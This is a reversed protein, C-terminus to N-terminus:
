QGHTTDESAVGFLQPSAIRDNHSPGIWRSGALVLAFLCLILGYRVWAPQLWPPLSAVFSRSTTRAPTNARLWRRRNIVAVTIDHISQELHDAYFSEVEAWLEDLQERSVPMPLRNMVLLFELKRQRDLDTPMMMFGMMEDPENLGYYVQSYRQRLEDSLSMMWYDTFAWDLAVGLQTAVKAVRHGPREWFKPAALDPHATLARPLQEKFHKLLDALAADIEADTPQFEAPFVKGEAADDLVDTLIDQLSRVTMEVLEGFVQKWSGLITGSKDALNEIVAGVGALAAVYTTRRGPRNAWAWVIVDYEAQYTGGGPKPKAAFGTVIRHIMARVRPRFLRSLGM